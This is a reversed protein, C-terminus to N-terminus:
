IPQRYENADAESLPRAVSDPEYVDGANSEMAGILTGGIHVIMLRMPTNAIVCRDYTGLLAAYCSVENV